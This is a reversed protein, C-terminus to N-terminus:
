VPAEFSSVGSTIAMFASSTANLANLVVVVGAAVVPAPLRARVCCSLSGLNRAEHSSCAGEAVELEPSFTRSNDTVLALSCPSIVDPLSVESMQLRRRQCRCVVGRVNALSAESMQLRRRQCRCAVGRVHRQGERALCSASLSATM